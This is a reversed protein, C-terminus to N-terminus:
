GARSATQDAYQLATKYGTLLSGNALYLWLGLLVIAAIGSSGFRDEFNAGLTLYAGYGISIATIAAAAVAAGRVTARVAVEAPSFLGYLLALFVTMGASALVGAGALGLLRVALGEGLLPPLLVVVVLASLILLPLLAILAVMLARGRLGEMQRDAGPTLRDFARALGAGYATAPWFAVLVSTWGLTTATDILDVVPEGAGLDTPTMASLQDGLARIREEGAISGAIWCGIMVTPAMSVLGFFALSAATLLSEDSRVWSVISKVPGPLLREVRKVIKWRRPSATTM